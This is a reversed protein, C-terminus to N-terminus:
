GFIAALEPFLISIAPIHSNSGRVAVVNALFSLVQSRGLSRRSQRSFAQSKAMQLKRHQRLQM